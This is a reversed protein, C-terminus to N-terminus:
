FHAGENPFGDGKCCIILQEKDNYLILVHLGDRVCAAGGHDIPRVAGLIGGENVRVGISHPDDRKREIVLWIAAKNVRIKRAIVVVQNAGGCCRKSNPVLFFIRGVPLIKM